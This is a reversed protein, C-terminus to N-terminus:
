GSNFFSTLISRTHLDRAHETLSPDLKFTLESSNELILQLLHLSKVSAVKEVMETTLLHRAHKFISSSVGESLAIGFISAGVTLSAGKQLLYDVIEPRDQACAWLLATRDRYDVIDISAGSEVLLSVISSHGYDSAHHLATWRKESDQFNVDAGHDILFKVAKWDGKLAFNQLFSWGRYDTSNVTEPHFYVDANPYDRFIELLLESCCVAEIFNETDILQPDTAGLLMYVARKLEGHFVVIDFATFFHDFAPVQDLDLENALAGAELLCIITPPNSSLCANMLPTMGNAPDVANVNADCQILFSVAKVNGFSSQTLIAKELFAPELTRSPNHSRQIYRELVWQCDSLLIQELSWNQHCREYLIISIAEDPIEEVEAPSADFSESLLSDKEAFMLRLMCVSSAKISETLDAITLSGKLIKFVLEAIDRSLALKFISAGGDIRITAGKELLYIVIDLQERRCAWYLASRGDRDIIDVSAGADVLAQVINFHGADAAHHMATWRSNPDQFDLNAGHAILKKALDANGNFAAHQLLSWGSSSRYHNVDVRCATDPTELILDAFGDFHGFISNLSQVSILNRNMVKFITKLIDSNPSEALALAFPLLGASDPINVSAGEEILKQCIEFKRAKIAMTVVTDGGATAADIDGVAAILTNLFPTSLNSASLVTFHLVNFGNSSRLSRFDVGLSQLRALMEGCEGYRILFAAPFGEMTLHYPDAGDEIAKDFLMSDDLFLAAELLANPSNALFRKIFKSTPELGNSIIHRFIFARELSSLTREIIDEVMEIMKSHGLRYISCLSACGFVDVLGNSKLTIIPLNWNTVLHEYVHPHNQMAAFDLPSLSTGEPLFEGYVLASIQLSNGVPKFMDIASIDGSLIAEGLTPIKIIQRCYPCTDFNSAWEQLCLIHYLHSCSTQYLNSFSSDEFCILCKEM